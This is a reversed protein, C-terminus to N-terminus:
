VKISQNNEPETACVADGPEVIDPGILWTGVRPRLEVANTVNGYGAFAMRGGEYVVGHVDKAPASLFANIQAVKGCEPNGGAAPVHELVHAV